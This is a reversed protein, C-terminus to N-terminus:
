SITATHWVTCVTEYKPCHDQLKTQKATINPIIYLYKTVRLPINPTNHQYHNHHHFNTNSLKPHLIFEQECIWWPIAKIQYLKKSSPQVFQICTVTRIYFLSMQKLVIRLPDCKGTYKSRLLRRWTMEKKDWNFPLAFIVTQHKTWIAASYNLVSVYKIIISIQTEILLM